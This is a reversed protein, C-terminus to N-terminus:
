GWGGKAGATVSSGLLLERRPPSLSLGGTLRIIAAKKQKGKEKTPACACTGCTRGCQSCWLAEDNAGRLQLITTGWLCKALLEKQESSEVLPWLHPSAFFLNALPSFRSMSATMLQATSATVVLASGENDLDEDTESVSVGERDHEGYRERWFQGIMCFDPEELQSIREELVHWQGSCGGTEMTQDFVRYILDFTEQWDKGIKNEKDKRRAERGELINEGDESPPNGDATVFYYVVTELHHVFGGCGDDM